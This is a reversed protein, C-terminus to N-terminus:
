PAPLDTYLNWVLVCGDEGVSVVQRDDPSFAVRRVRGSHGRGTELARGTRLDWLKVASDGGGTVFLDSHHAVAICTAEDDGHVPSVVQVPQPERLDWYTIKKEQGVSLVLSQDRSLAIGHIGGMRQTHSSIRRERRLDWCLLSRDRSCSVAHADDSYVQIQTVASTHERLDGVMERSRIEWVRVSGDAGGSVLFRQNNASTVSTVGGRHASAITWLESGDDALHGRM